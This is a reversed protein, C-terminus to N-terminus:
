PITGLDVLGAVWGWQVAHLSHFEVVVVHIQICAGWDNIEHTVHAFYAWMQYVRYRELSDFYGDQFIYILSRSSIWLGVLLIGRSIISHYTIFKM